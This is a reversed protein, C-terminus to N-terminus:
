CTQKQEAKSESTIKEKKEQNYEDFGFKKLRTRERGTKREVVNGSDALREDASSQPVLNMGIDITIEALVPAHDTVDGWGYLADKDQRGIPKGNSDRIDQKLYVGSGRKLIRATGSFYDNCIFYDAVQGNGDHPMNTWCNPPDGTPAVRTLKIKELYESWSASTSKVNARHRSHFRIKDEPMVYWDGAFIVPKIRNSTFCKINYYSIIEKSNLVAGGSPSTHSVVLDFIFNYNKITVAYVMAPRTTIYKANGKKMGGTEQYQQTTDWAESKKTFVSNIYSANIEKERQANKAAMAALERQGDWTGICEMDVGDKRFFCPYFEGYNGTKPAYMNNKEIALNYGKIFGYQNSISHKWGESEELKRVFGDIDNIEQLALITPSWTHLIYMLAAIQQTNRATDSKGFHNLNLTVTTIKPNTTNITTIAEGIALDQLPAAVTIPMTERKISQDTDDFFTLCEQLHEKYHDICYFQRCIGCQMVEETSNCYQIEMESSNLAFKCLCTKLCEQLHEKYHDICYFQRCIGCQMVEETSNCYQIEMENSNLEFQCLM